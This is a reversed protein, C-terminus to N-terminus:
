DGFFEKMDKESVYHDEVEFDEEDEDYEPMDWGESLEINGNYGNIEGFGQEEEWYHIFPKGLSALKEIWNSPSSWATDFSVRSYKGVTDVYGDCANWKTGWYVINWAYWNFWDKGDEHTVHADGNDIFKEGFEAICQEKTEPSPILINFDVEGDSNVIKSVLDPKCIIENHVWNPM